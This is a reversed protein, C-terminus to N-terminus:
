TLVLEKQNDLFLAFESYVKANIQILINTPLLNLYSSPLINLSINNLLDNYAKIEKNNELFNYYESKKMNKYLINLKSDINDIIKMKSANDM